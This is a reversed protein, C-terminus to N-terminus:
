LSGAMRALTDRPRPAGIVPMPISSSSTFNSSRPQHLDAYEGQLTGKPGVCVFKNFKADIDDFDPPWRMEVLYVSENHRAPLGRRHRHQELRRLQEVRERYAYVFTHGHEAGTCAEDQQRGIDFVAPGILSGKSAEIDGHLAVAIATLDLAEFRLKLGRHGVFGNVRHKDPSRPDYPEAVIDFHQGLRPSVGHKDPGTIRETRREMGFKRGVCSDM